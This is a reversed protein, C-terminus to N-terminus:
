PAAQAGYVAQLNSVGDYVYTGGERPGQGSAKLGGFPAKIGVDDSRRNVNVVGSELRRVAEQQLGLDQTYVASTLGYITDNAGRWAAEPHEFTALSVVPAFLEGRRLPDDDALDTLLTAAMFGDPRVCGLPDLPSSALLRARSALADAVASRGAAAAAPTILPGLTTRDDAPDGAVFGVFREVLLSTLQDAVEAQVLVRRTTTCKQGQLSGVTAAVCDAALELDADAFVVAPNSGAMELSYPIFREAVSAAIARGAATSGTFAVGRALPHQCLERGTEPAGPTVDVLGDPLGAARLQEVALLAVRTALESPKWVVGNGVLLAPLLRWLPTILPVNWPSILGIVGLPRRIVTAGGRREAVPPHDAYWRATAVTGAVEVAAEGRLEGVETVIADRLAEAESAGDLADAFRRLIAARESVPADVWARQATDVRAVRASLADGAVADDCHVVEGTAPNRSIVQAHPGNRDPIACRGNV